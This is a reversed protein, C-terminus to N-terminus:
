GRGRVIQLGLRERVFVWRILREREEETIETIRVGLGNSLERLVEGACELPGSEKNDDGDLHLLFDVVDGMRLGERGAVMFGGGSINVTTTEAEWGDRGMPWYSVRIIADLRMFERRQILQVDGLHDVRLSADAAAHGAGDLRCVGRRNVFQIALNGGDLMAVPSSENEAFSLLTYGAGAERVRAPITAGSPAIVAVQQGQEPLGRM